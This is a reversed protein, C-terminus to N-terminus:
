IIDSDVVSNKLINYIYIFHEIYSIQATAILLHCSVPYKIKINYKNINLNTKHNVFYVVVAAMALLISIYM